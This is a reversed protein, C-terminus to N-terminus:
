AGRSAGKLSEKLDLGGQLGLGGKLSEESPKLLTKLTKVEFLAKSNLERESSPTPDM